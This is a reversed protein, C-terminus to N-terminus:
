RAHDIPEDFELSYNRSLSADYLVGWINPLMAHCTELESVLEQSITLPRTWGDEMHIAKGPEEHLNILEALDAAKQAYSGHHNLSCPQNGKSLAAMMDRLQQQRPADDTPSHEEGEPSSCDYEQTAPLSQVEGETVPPTNDGPISPTESPSGMPQWDPPGSTEEAPEAHALDSLVDAVTQATYGEGALRRAVLYPRATSDLCLDPPPWPLTCGEPAETGIRPTYDPSLPWPPYAASSKNSASQTISLTRETETLPRPTCKEGPIQVGNRTAPSDRYTREPCPITMNGHSDPLYEKAFCRHLPQTPLYRAAGSDLIPDEATSMCPADPERPRSPTDQNLQRDDPSVAAPPSEATTAGALQAHREREILINLMPASPHGASSKNSTPQSIALAQEEESLQRTDPSVAAPPSAIHSAAAQPADEGQGLLILRHGEHTRHATPPSGASSATEMKIAVNCQHSNALMSAALHAQQQVEVLAAQRRPDVAGAAAHAERGAPLVAGSM